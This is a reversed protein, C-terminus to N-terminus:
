SDGDQDTDPANPYWIWTPAPKRQTHLHFGRREYWSELEEQSPISYDEPWPPDPTYPKAQASLRVHYKDALAKLFNVLPNAAGKGGDPLKELKAIEIYEGKWNILAIAKEFRRFDHTRFEERFKSIQHKKRHLM